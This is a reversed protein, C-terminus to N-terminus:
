VCMMFKEIRVINTRRASSAKVCARGVISSVRLGSSASNQSTIGYTRGSM